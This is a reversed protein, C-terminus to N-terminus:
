NAPHEQGLRALAGWEEGPNGGAFAPIERGNAQDGRLIFVITMAIGVSDPSAIELDWPALSQKTAVSRTIVLL